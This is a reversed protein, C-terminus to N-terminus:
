GQINMPLISASASAGISQWRICLASENSFVRSSPFISPLLLPPHCLILHNSPLMLEFFLLKLLSQSITFSLSAQHAAIWATALLQVRSLSQVAVVFLLLFPLSPLQSVQFPHQLCHLYLKVYIKSLLLLLLKAFNQVGFASPSAEFAASLQSSHNLLFHEGQGM